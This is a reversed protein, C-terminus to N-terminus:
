IHKDVLNVEYRSVIKEMMEAAAREASKLSKAYIRKTTGPDSHGLLASVTLDQVGKGILLTAATHRLGHFTMKPLNHRELFERFWSSLTDPFM